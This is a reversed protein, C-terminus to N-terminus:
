PLGITITVTVTVTATLGDSDTVTATIEHTTAYGVAPAGTLDAEFENGTGLTGDVSSSWTGQLDTDVDDTVSAELVLTFIRALTSYRTEVRPSLLTIEPAQCDLSEIRIQASGTAEASDTATLTVVHEGVSPAFTGVAGTDFAGDISSSWALDAATLSGDEPDSGEGVFTYATGVCVTPSATPNTITATPPENVAVITTTTTDDSADTTATTDGESSVDVEDADSDDEGPLDAPADDPNSGSPGPAVTAATNPDGNDLPAQDIEQSLVDVGGAVDIESAPSANVVGITGIGVVVAAGAAWRRWRRPSSRPGEASWRGDTEQWIDAALGDPAAVAAFTAFVNTPSLLKRRKEGRDECADVHKTVAKALEQTMPPLEAAGVVVRLDACDQNAHRAMVYAGIVSEVRDKMRSVMTYANGPSVGTVEAIEVSELGHRVTLDLVTFTREDLGRAAEWVLTACEEVETAVQPSALRDHDVEVLL